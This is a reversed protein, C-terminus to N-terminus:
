FAFSIVKTKTDRRCKKSNDKNWFARYMTNSNFKFSFEARLDSAKVDLYKEDPNFGTLWWTKKSYSIIKKGKYRLIMSMNMALSKDVLWHPGGYYIGLEAGAGLNIYNGKWAWLRYKRRGSKFDLTKSLMSTGIDFIFDYFDNYGFYQQWCDFQAHYIGNKDKKMNLVWAGIEATKVGMKVLVKNGKNLVKRVTGKFGNWLKRWVFGTKDCRDAPCNGCYTYLTYSAHDDNAGMVEDANLFRGLEPDYYRSRLYYLGTETDYYYGRYRYPNLEVIQTADDSAYETCKGWADYEYRVMRNGDRDLVEIIDGQLNKRYFYAEGNVSIGYLEDERDYLPVLTYADFTECIIKDGDLVYRHEGKATRIGAANYSFTVGDFSKLQRGKEWCLTHGLYNTPNGQADYSISKNGVGTLQDKWKANGYSYSKGNKSLINGYGDYTMTNVTKFNAATVGKHRETLLQGLADYTYETIGDESDTVKTIREEEDYEYTLIRGNDFTIQRVLRTQATSKVRAHNQHQESVTGTYYAFRRSTAATGTQVEEFEKRGLFDTKAHATVTRGDIVTKTVVTDDEANEYYVTPVDCGQTVKQILKGEEDYIYRTFHLVVQEGYENVGRASSRMLREGEYVYTYEIQQTNDITDAVNGLSDYRYTYDATLEGAANYWKESIIRGNEDYVAQMTDGNAYTVTSPQKAYAGYTYEILKETKGAIGVSKLKKMADYEMQYRLGDGRVIEKANGFVDYSYSVSSLANGESDKQAVSTIEGRDNYTYETRNGTRDTVATNRSTRADVTYATNYGRADSEGILDNGNEGYSFTRYVTGFEGDKFTTETLANGFSDKLEEFEPVTTELSEPQDSPDSEIEPAVVFEEAGLDTEISSRVLKFDSFLAFGYNKNYVCCVKVSAVPRYENKSFSLTFLEPDTVNTPLELTHVEPAAVASADAYYIEAMLKPPEIDVNGRDRLVLGRSQVKASFAFTERTDTKKCVAVEQGVTVDSNPQANIQVTQNQITTQLSKNSSWTGELLNYETAFDNKELQAADVYVAGAGDAVIQVTVAETSQFPLILRVYQDGTSPLHESEALVTQGSVVRLYVGPKGGGFDADLMEYPTAVRVYASFTGRLCSTSQGIGCALTDTESYSGDEYTERSNTTAMYLTNKGFLANNENDVLYRTLAASNGTINWAELSNFNHDSLLNATEVTDARTESEVDGDENMRYFIVTNETESQKETIKVSKGALSYELKVDEGAAFTGDTQRNLETIHTVFRDLYTVQTKSVIQGNEDTLVIRTPLSDAYEIQVMRGDRYTMGSLREDSYTYEIYTGDPATIKSLFDASYEFSFTRNAGDTVSLIKEQQYAIDMHNGYLDSIQILRGDESFKYTDDGQKLTRQSPNYYMKEDGIDEFLVTNGDKKESQKFFTETGNEDTYVYGTYTDGEQEFECACMSLMTNLRFGKGLKMSSWDATHLGIASNETYNCDSLAGAYLHELTVPMRNGEWAFDPVRLNIDGNNLNVQATGFYGINHSYSAESPVNKYGIAYTVRLSASETLHIQGTFESSETMSKLVFAGVAENKVMDEYFSTIDLAYEASENQSMAEVELLSGIEPESATGPNLMDLVSYLGFRPKGETSVSGADQELLIEVKKVKAGLPMDPLQISGYIRFVNHLTEDGEKHHFVGLNGDCAGSLYGNSWSYLALPSNASASTGIGIGSFVTQLSGDSMQYTNEGMSGIAKVKQGEKQNTVYIKEM